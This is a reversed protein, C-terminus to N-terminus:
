VATKQAVRARAYRELKRAGAYRKHIGASKGSVTEV